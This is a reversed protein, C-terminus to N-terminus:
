MRDYTRGSGGDEGLVTENGSGTKMGLDPGSGSSGKRIM